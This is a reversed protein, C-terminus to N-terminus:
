SAALAAAAGARAASRGPLAACLVAVILAVPVGVVFVVVPITADSPVGIETAVAAWAWRGALVGPVIGIALASCLMTTAQWIISSWVQRPSFGITKLIAIDRRRRAVSVVLAHGMMGVAVTVLLLAMVLPTSRVRSFNTIDGPQQSTRFKCVFDCDGGFSPAARHLATAKASVDTGREYRLLFFTY